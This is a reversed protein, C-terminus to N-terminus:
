NCELDLEFTGATRTGSEIWKIFVRRSGNVVRRWHVALKGQSALAGFKAADTVLENILIALKTAQPESLRVRGGKLEIHEPYAGMYIALQDEVIRRLERGKPASRTLQGAASSELGHRRMEILNWRGHQKALSCAHSHRVDVVADASCADMCYSCLALVRQDKMAADVAREYVQFGEWKSEDLFSTNGSVRLGAYGATLAEDKGSLWVQVREAASMVALKTYWENHDFIQIQGAASRRDFDSIAARMESAARDKGYPTSTVWICFENRELGVKFYPVLVEGLDNASRFFHCVHDGWRLLGDLGVARRRSYSCYM